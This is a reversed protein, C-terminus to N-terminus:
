NLIYGLKYYIDANDPNAIISRKLAEIERSKEDSISVSDAFSVVPCVILLILLIMSFVSPIIISLVINNNANNIVINTKVAQRMRGVVWGKKGQM